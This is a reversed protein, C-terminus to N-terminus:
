TDFKRPSPGAALGLEIQHPIAGPTDTELTAGSTV